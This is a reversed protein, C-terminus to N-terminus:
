AVPHSQALEPWPPNERWHNAGTWKPWKQQNSSSYQRDRGGLNFNRVGENTSINCLHIVELSHDRKPWNVRIWKVSVVFLGLHCLPKVHQFFRSLQRQHPREFRTWIQQFNSIFNRRPCPLSLLCAILRYTLDTQLRKLNDRDYVVISATKPHWMLVHSRTNATLASTIGQSFVFLPCEFVSCIRINNTSFFFSSNMAHLFMITMM